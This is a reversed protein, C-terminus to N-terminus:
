LLIAWATTHDNGGVEGILFENRAAHYSGRFPNRLGSAYITKRAGNANFPGPTNDYYPNDTPVAGTRTFRHVKGYSSALDQALAPTFDDGIALLLTSDNAFAMAGGIHCCSTFPDSTEFIVTESSLSASDGLHVFRSVRNKDATTSYYVYFYHNTAFAPDLVLEILGHEATNNLNQLQLYTTRTVPAQSVPSTIWITGYLSTVLMRGDPLFAASTPVLLGDM